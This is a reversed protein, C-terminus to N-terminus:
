KEIEKVCFLHAEVDENGNCLISWGIDSGSFVKPGLAERILANAKDAAQHPATRFKAFDEETFFEQPDRM